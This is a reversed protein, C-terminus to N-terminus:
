PLCRPRVEASFSELRNKYRLTLDVRLNSDGVERCSFGTLGLAVKFLGRRVGGSLVERVLDEGQLRYIVRLRPQQPDWPEPPLPLAGPGPLRTALPDVREFELASSPSGSGSVPQILAVASRLEGRLNAFGTQVAEIGRDRDSAFGYARVWDRMLAAGVGLAASFLALAVLAELLSVATEKSCFM